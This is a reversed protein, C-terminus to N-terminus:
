MAEQRKNYYFKMVDSPMMRTVSMSKMTEPRYIKRLRLKVDAESSGYFVFEVEDCHVYFPFYRGPSKKKEECVYKGDKMKFKCKRIKGKPQKSLGGLPRDLGATPGNEDANASFGAAGATSGTNMTPAEEQLPDFSNKLSRSAQQRKAYDMYSEGHRLKKPDEKPKSAAARDERARQNAGPGGLKRDEEPDPHWFDGREQIVEETFPNGVTHKAKKTVRDHADISKQQYNAYEAGKATTNMGATKSKVGPRKAERERESQREKALMRRYEDETIFQKFTIAM